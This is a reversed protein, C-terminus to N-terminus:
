EQPQRPLSRISKLDEPELDRHTEWLHRLLGDYIEAMVSGCGRRYAKFEEESCKDRVEVISTDLQSAIETLQKILKAALTKDTIM